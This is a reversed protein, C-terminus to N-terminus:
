RPTVSARRPSRCSRGAATSCRGTRPSRPWDPTPWCRSRATSVTTRPARSCVRCDTRTRASGLSWTTPRSETGDATTARSCWSSVRDATPSGAPTRGPRTPSRYCHGPHSTRGRGPAACPEVGETSLVTVTGRTADVEVEMGTRLATTLGDVQVVTPIGMERAVIAVHTLPSGREILLATVSPLATVWGPDTRHTALIGGDAGSPDTVVVVRGRATGTASAVGTFVDGAEAAPLQTLPVFGADALDAASVDPGRTRFRAPAVLGDAVERARRRSAIRRR